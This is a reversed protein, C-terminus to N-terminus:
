DDWICWILLGLWDFGGFVVWEFWCWWGFWEFLMWYILWFWVRLILFLFFCFWILFFFMVMFIGSICCRKFSSFMGVLWIVLKSFRVWWIFFILFCGILFIGDKCLLVMYWKKIFGEVCVCVLKSIVVFCKDVFVKDSLVFVDLRFFFFVSSLVVWLKFVMVGFMRIIWWLVVFVGCRSECCKFVVMIFVLLLFWLCGVWVSSLMIVMWFCRFCSLFNFMIMIFLMVWLWIVWDFRNLNVVMFVLTCMDFGVVMNGGLM